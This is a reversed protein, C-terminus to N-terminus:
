HGNTTESDAVKALRDVGLVGPNTRESLCTSITGNKQKVLLSARTPLLHEPQCRGLLAHLTKWYAICAVGIGYLTPPLRVAVM